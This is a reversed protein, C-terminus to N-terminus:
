LREQLALCCCVHILHGGCCSNGDVMKLSTDIARLHLVWRVGWAKLLAWCSSMSVSMGENM